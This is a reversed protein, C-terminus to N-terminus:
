EEPALIDIHRFWGWEPHNRYTPLMHRPVVLHCSDAIKEIISVQGINSPPSSARFIIKKLKNDGLFAGEALKKLTSPLDIIRLNRNHSLGFYQINEVGEPIVLTELLDCRSVAWSWITRLSRPLSLRKLNKQQIAHIFLTNVGEPVILESVDKVLSFLMEGDHSLVCTGDESMKLHPNDPSITVEVTPSAGDFAGPEWCQLGSGVHIKEIHKGFFAFEDIYQISDPIIVERLNDVEPGGAFHMGVNTIRYIRGDITVSDPITYVTANGCNGKDLWATGDDDDLLYETDGIQYKRRFHQM